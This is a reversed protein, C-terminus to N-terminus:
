SCFDLFSIVLAPGFDTNEDVGFNNMKGRQYVYLAINIAIVVLTVVAALFSM